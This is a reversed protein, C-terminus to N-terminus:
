DAANGPGGADTPCDDHWVGLMPLKAQVVDDPTAYDGFIGRITGTRNENLYKYRGCFVGHDHCRMPSLQYNDYFWRGKLEAIVEDTIYGSLAGVFEGRGDNNTWFTGSMIGVPEGKYDTWVGEFRGTSPDVPDKIWEGKILGGPCSNIWIKRSHVAVGKTNDIPYFAAFNFLQWYDLQLTFPGTEFTLVPPTAYPVNRKIFILFSLGDFDMCTYSIWAATTPTSFPLVSDQGPEFDIMYRVYVVGEASLSLIGSWDTTDPIHGPNNFLDGWLFTVAFIDCSDILETPIPDLYAIRPDTSNGDELMTYTDLLKQVEAPVETALPTAIEAQDPATARDSCGGLVLILGTLSIFVLRRM